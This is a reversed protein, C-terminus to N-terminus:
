EEDIKDRIAMDFIEFTGVEPADSYFVGRLLGRGNLNQNPTLHTARGSRPKRYWGFYPELDIPVTRAAVVVTEGNNLHCYALTEAPPNISVAYNREIGTVFIFAVKVAQGKKPPTLWTVERPIYRIPHPALGVLPFTILLATALDTSASDPRKWKTFRSPGTYTVNSKKLRGLNESTMKFLCTRDQHLSIKAIGMMERPALYVDSKYDV